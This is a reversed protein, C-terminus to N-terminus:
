TVSPTSAWHRWWDQLVLVAWLPHSWDAEGALHSRWRSLVIDPRAFGAAELAPAALL